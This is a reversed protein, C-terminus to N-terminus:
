ISEVIKPYVAGGICFLITEKHTRLCKFGKFVDLFVKAISNLVADTM